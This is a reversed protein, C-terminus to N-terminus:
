HAPCAREALRDLWHEFVKPASRALAPGYEHTDARMQTVEVGRASGIEVIHGVFWQELQEPLAELHFQLGLAHDGIAFAQCPCHETSALSVAGKPLEFNDGHWHLVVPHHEGLEGLCSERGNDNLDVPAWGIEKRRAPSVRAGLARAMLQAGLCIGLVPAEAELRRGLAAIEAELFPFEETDNTGLPGGLVILLDAALPDHDDLGDLPVDVVNVQAGRASLVQALLGLDEFVVHRFVDVKM